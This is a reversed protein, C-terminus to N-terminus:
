PSLPVGFGMGYLLYHYAVKDFAFGAYLSCVVLKEPDGAAQPFSYTRNILWEQTSFGTQGCWGTQAAAAARLDAAISAAVDTASVGAEQSLKWAVAEELAGAPADLACLEAQVAIRPHVVGGNLQIFNQRAQEIAIQETSM